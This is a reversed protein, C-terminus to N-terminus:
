HHWTIQKVSIKKGLKITANEKIIGRKSLPYPLYGNM